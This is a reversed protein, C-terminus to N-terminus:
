FDPRGATRGLEALAQCNIEVEQLAAELALRELDALAVKFLSSGVNRLQAAPPAHARDHSSQSM